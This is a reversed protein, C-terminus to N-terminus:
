QQEPNEEVFSSWRNRGLRKATYLAADAKRLLGDEEQDDRPFMSVGISCQLDMVQGQILAPKSFEEMVKDAVAAADSEHQLDSILLTFEDGGVRAAVDSERIVYRLRLAVECLVQDGAEHGYNDNVSKFHDMDLFMVALMSGNRRCRALEQRLRESFLKRNPLDTLPDHFAMRHIYEEAAKRETIDHIFAFAYHPRGREDRVLTANVLVYMQRGGNAILVRERNQWTELSYITLPVERSTQRREPFLACLPMPVLEERSYGTMECFGDNVDRLRLDLGLRCYGEKTLNVVSAFEERGGEVQRLLRNLSAIMMLFAALILLGNTMLTNFQRAMAAELDRESYTVAVVFSNHWDIENDSFFSTYPLYRLIRRTEGNPGPVSIERIQREQLVSKLLERYEAPDMAPVAVREGEAGLLLRAVSGRRTLRCIDVEVVSPYQRSFQSVMAILNEQALMPYKERIDLSVQMLYRRDPTSMYGYSKLQGNASVELRESVFKGEQRWRALLQSLEPFASFDLGQDPADTTKVVRLREDILHFQYPQVSQRIEAMDWLFVDPHGQYYELMKQLVTEKEERAQQDVLRSAVDAQELSTMISKEFLDRQIRHENKVMRVMERYDAYFMVITVLLVGTILIFQAHNMYHKKSM